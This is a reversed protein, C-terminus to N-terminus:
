PILSEGNSPQDAGGSLVEPICLDDLLDQVIRLAALHPLKPENVTLFHHIYEYGVSLMIHDFPRFGRSIIGILKWNENFVPSGSSGGGGPITYVDLPLDEVPINHKGSYHGHFILVMNEDHVGFPAALNFSSLGPLPKIQSLRVPKAEIKTKTTILCLDHAASVVLVLGKYQATQIDFIKLEEDTGDSKKCVHKATIIITNTDNVQAIIVGSATSHKEKGRYSVIKVFADTPPVITHSPSCNCSQSITACNLFVAFLPLIILAKIQRLFSM